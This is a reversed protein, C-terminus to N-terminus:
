HVRVCRGLEDRASRTRDHAWHALIHAMAAALELQEGRIIADVVFDSVIEHDDRKPPDVGRDQAEQAATIFLAFYRDRLTSIEALWRLIQRREETADRRRRTAKM